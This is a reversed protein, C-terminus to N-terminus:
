EPASPTEVLGVLDAVTKCKALAKADLELGLHEDALAIFSVSALSNWDIDALLETGNLSDADAAAAEEILRLIEDNTM